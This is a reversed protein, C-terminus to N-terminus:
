GVARTASISRSASEEHVPISQSTLTILSGLTRHVIRHTAAADYGILLMKAQDIQTGM